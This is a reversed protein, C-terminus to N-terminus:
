SELRIVLQVGLANAIRQLTEVTIRHHGAEARAIVAHNTGARQALARRSLGLEERRAKLLAGISHVVLPGSVEQAANPGYSISVARDDLDESTRL